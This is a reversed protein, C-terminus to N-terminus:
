EWATNIERSQCCFIKSCCLFQQQQLLSLYCNDIMFLSQDDSGKEKRASLPVRVGLATLRWSRLSTHRGIGGDRCFIKLVNHVFGIRSDRDQLVVKIPVVDRWSMKGIRYVMEACIIRNIYSNRRKHGFGGLEIIKTQKGNFLKYM